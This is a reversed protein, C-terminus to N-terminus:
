RRLGRGRFKRRSPNRAVQWRDSDAKPQIALATIRFLRQDFPVQADFALTIGGPPLAALEDGTQLDFLRLHDKM